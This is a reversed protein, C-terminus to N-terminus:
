RLGRKFLIELVLYAFEVLYIRITTQLCPLCELFSFPVSSKFSDLSESSGSVTYDKRFSAPSLKTYGGCHM